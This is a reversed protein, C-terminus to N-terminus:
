TVTHHSWGKRASHTFSDIGICRRWSERARTNHLKRMDYKRSNDKRRTKNLSEMRVKGYVTVVYGDEVRSNEEKGFTEMEIVIYKQQKKSSESKSANM